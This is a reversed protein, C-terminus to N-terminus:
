KITLTLGLKGSKVPPKCVFVESTEPDYMETPKTVTKLLTAREDLEAKAVEFKQLLRDYIPCGCNNLDYRVGQMGETIKVGFKQFDPGIPKSEAIPRIKADMEKALESLKKTFILADVADYNGDKIATECMVVAVKIDTKDWNIFGQLELELGAPIFNDNQQLHLSKSM